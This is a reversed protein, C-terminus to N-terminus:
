KLKSKLTALNALATQRRAEVVAADAIRKQILASLLNLSKDDLNNVMHELDVTCEIQILQETAASMSKISSIKINHM